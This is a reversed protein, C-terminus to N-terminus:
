THLLTISNSTLIAKNKLQRALFHRKLQRAEKFPNAM